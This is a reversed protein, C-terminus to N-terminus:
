PLARRHSCVIRAVGMDSTWLQNELRLSKDCIIWALAQSASWPSGNRDTM